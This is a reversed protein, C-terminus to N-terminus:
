YAFFQLRFRVLHHAGCGRFWEEGHPLPVSVKPLGAIFFHALQELPCSLKPHGLRGLFVHPLCALFATLSILLLPFVVKFNIAPIATPLPSIYRASGSRPLRPRMTVRTFTTSPVCTSPVAVSFAIRSKRLRARPM